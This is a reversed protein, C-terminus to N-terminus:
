QPPVVFINDPVRTVFAIGLVPYDTSPTRIEYTLDAFRAMIKKTVLVAFQEGACRRYGLGFPMYTPAQVTTKPGTNGPIGLPYLSTKESMPFAKPNSLDILTEGDHYKAPIISTDVEDILKFLNEPKFQTEPDSCDTDPVCPCSLNTDWDAYRSPNYRYYKLKFGVPYITPDTPDLPDQGPAGLFALGDNQIMILQHLHRSQIPQNTTPNKETVSSTTSASPSTIRYFERVVNLQENSNAAAQYKGFFDYKRLAPPNSFTTAPPIIIPLGTVKDLIMNRFQATFNAFAFFNHLCEAGVAKTDQGAEHWWYALTNKNDDDVIKQVRQQLYEFVCPATTYGYMLAKNWSGEGEYKDYYDKEQYSILKIFQNFYDYVYQPFEETGLHSELFFRINEDAFASIVPEELSTIRNYVRNVFLDIINNYYPLVDCRTANMYVKKRYNNPGRNRLDTQFLTAWPSSLSFNFPDQGGYFYLYYNIGQFKEYADANPLPPFASPDAPFAPFPPSPPPVGSYPAPDLPDTVITAPITVNGWPYTANAEFQGPFPGDPPAVFQPPRSPIYRVLTNQDYENVKKLLKWDPKSRCCLLVEEEGQEPTKCHSKKCHDKKHCKAKKHEFSKHNKHTM